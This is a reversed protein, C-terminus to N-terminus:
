LIILWEPVSDLIKSLITPQFKYLLFYTNYYGKLEGCFDHMFDHNQFQQSSVPEASSYKHM